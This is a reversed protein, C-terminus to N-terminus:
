KVIDRRKHSATFVSTGRSLAKGGRKNLLVTIRGRRDRVVGVGNKNSFALVKKSTKM